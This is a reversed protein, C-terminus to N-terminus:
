ARFKTKSPETVAPAVVKAEKDTVSAVVKPSAPPSVTVKFALVRVKAPEAGIMSAEPPAAVKLRLVVVLRGRVLPVPRVVKPPLRVTEPAVVERAEVAILRVPEEGLRSKVVAVVKPILVVVLRGTVKPVPKTVALLKAEEEAAIVPPVILLVGTPAVVGPVPAKVVSVLEPLEVRPVPAEVVLVRPEPAAETFVMPEVVVGPAKVKCPAM